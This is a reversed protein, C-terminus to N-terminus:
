KISGDEFKMQGKLTNRLKEVNLVVEYFKNRGEMKYVCIDGEQELSKFIKNINQRSVNLKEGITAQTSPEKLLLLLTKLHYTKLDQMAIYELYDLNKM